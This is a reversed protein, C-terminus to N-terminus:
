GCVANDWSSESTVKLTKDTSSAKDMVAQAGTLACLPDVDGQLLLIPWTIDALHSVVHAMADLLLLTPRCVSVNNYM